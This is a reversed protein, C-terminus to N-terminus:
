AASSLAHEFLLSQSYLSHHLFPGVGGICCLCNFVSFLYMFVFFFVM